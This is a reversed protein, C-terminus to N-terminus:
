PAKAWGLPALNGLTLRIPATIPSFRPNPSSLNPSDRGLDSHSDGSDRTTESPDEQQELSTWARHKGKPRKSESRPDPPGAKLAENPRACVKGTTLPDYPPM